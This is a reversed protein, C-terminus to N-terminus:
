LGVLITSIPHIGELMPQEFKGPTKDISHYESYKQLASSRFQEVLVISVIYQQKGPKTVIGTCLSQKAHSHISQSSFHCKNM